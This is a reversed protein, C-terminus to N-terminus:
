LCMLELRFNLTLALLMQNPNNILTKSSNEPVRILGIDLYLLWLQPTWLLLIVLLSKYHDLPHNDALITLLPNNIFMCPGEYACQGSTITLTSSNLSIIISTLKQLLQTFHDEAAACITLLHPIMYWLSYDPSIMLIEFKTHGYISCMHAWWQFTKPAYTTNKTWIIEQGSLQCARKPKDVDGLTWTFIQKNTSTSLRQFPISM